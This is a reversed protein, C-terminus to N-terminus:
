DMNVLFFSSRTLYLEKNWTEHKQQLNFTAHQPNKWVQLVSWAVRM